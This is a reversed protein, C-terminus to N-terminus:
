AAKDTLWLLKLMYDEISCILEMQILNNIISFWIELWNNEFTTVQGLIIFHWDANNQRMHLNTQKRGEHM